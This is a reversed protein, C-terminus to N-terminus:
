ALVERVLVFAEAAHCGSVSGWWRMRDAVREPSRPHPVTRRESEYCALARLKEHVYHDHLAVFVNPVFPAFGFAQSTSEPVECALLRPRDRDTDAMPRTAMLVAEAVARHDQNLDGLWHTYITGVPGIEALERAVHRALVLRPVADLEQDRLDPYASLNWARQTGLVSTARAYELLRTRCLDPDPVGGAFRSGIGDTFTLVHVSDGACAHKALAGGCGLVEDDPHALVALVNM